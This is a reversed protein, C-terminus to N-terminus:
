IFIRRFYQIDDKNIGGMWAILPAGIILTLLLKLPFMFNLWSLIPLCFLFTGGFPALLNRLLSFSLHKGLAAIMATLTALEYVILASSVGIIGFFQALIFMAIFFAATGFLISRTFAKEHGMGILTYGFVSIVLTLVFYGTLIRFVPVSASYQAGFLLTIIFEASLITLLSLILASVTVIKLVRNFTTELMEPLQSAHRSIEPFFMTYFIRDFILLMVTLRFAVSFIGVESTSAFWGLYLVPFQVAFQSSLNAIGLPFAEKLLSFPKLNKLSFRITHKQRKFIIGLLIATATGGIVWGWAVSLLDDATHVFMLIFALYFLMGAFKGASILGMQRRAQFYWDLWLASPFLYLLYVTTVAAIQPTQVAFYILVAALVFVFLTLGFRTSLVRGLFEPPTDPEGALKRTGSLTLGSNGFILAYALVATGISIIGFGSAGLVRALYTTAAFGILRVAIDGSFLYLFNKSHSKLPM